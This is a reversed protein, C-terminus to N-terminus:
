HWETILDEAILGIAFGFGWMLVQLKLFNPAARFIQVSQPSGAPPDPPRKPAKLLDLLRDRFRKYIM